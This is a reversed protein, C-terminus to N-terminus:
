KFERHYETYNRTNGQRIKKFQSNVGGSCKYMYNFWSTASSHESKRRNEFSSNIARQKGEGDHRAPVHINIAFCGSAGHTPQKEDQILRDDSFASNEVFSYSRCSCLFRLESSKVSVKMQSISKAM